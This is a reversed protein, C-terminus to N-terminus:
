LIQDIVDELIDDARENLKDLEKLLFNKLEEPPGDYSLILRRFKKIAAAAVVEYIRM